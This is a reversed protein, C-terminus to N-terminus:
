GIRDNETRELAFCTNLKGESSFRGKSDHRLVIKVDIAFVVTEHSALRFLHPPVVGLAYLCRKASKRTPIPQHTVFLVVPELIFYLDFLRNFGHAGRDFRQCAFLSGSRVLIFFCLLVGRRGFGRTGMRGGTVRDRSLCTVWLRVHCCGVDGHVPAIVRATSM